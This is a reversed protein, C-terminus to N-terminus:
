FASRSRKNYERGLTQAGRITSTGLSTFGLLRELPAITKAIWNTTAVVKDESIYIRDGPLVQYNTATAAGRTIAAWDVQLIQECGFQDPSPRAIWIQMSSGQGLGGIQGIADLVTENGTVPLRVITDGLGAGETLVYYVKSNYGTVDLSVEPSDFFKGLHREIATQAEGITKGAVNVAGYQRLNITGDPTVLYQGTVMQTGASRSLQISVEPEALVLGLHDKVIREAEEITLGAVRVTGYAPGLSVNGEGEVLYVDDIPQDLLTGVVRIQLADFVEIRYPPKPVLKLMEIALLDPPEIRYAPLSAKALEKPAQLEGPVPPELNPGYFDIPQCGCLVGLLAILFFAPLARFLINRSSVM